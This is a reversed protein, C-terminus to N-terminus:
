VPVATASGNNAGFSTPDIATATATLNCAVTVSPDTVLGSATATCGAIVDDTVTVSYTNTPLGNISATTAANSWLYTINGQGGSVLAAAAGDSGGATTAATVSLNVLVNCTLAPESITVTATASCGALVDDSVTVTYMGAMLGSEAMATGGSPWAYTINGQGGTVIATASGDSGGNTTADSQIPITVGVNCTAAAPETITITATAACGALINDSVTVTYTGATLGVIASSTATNSWMYTITSQGGTVTATADGNSGGNTTVNNGAVTAGVTCSLAAPETITVTAMAACGAVVDDTVTVTYTGATLGAITSTTGGGTWLYTINGQGGTVAATADGNSGGSTTVNNGSATAAVTCVPASSGFNPRIVYPQPFGVTAGDVWAGGNFKYYSSAATIIEVGRQCAINTTTAFEDIGVAYSGAALTTNMALQLVASGTDAPTAILLASSDVISTPIGAVVNYITARTTDGIALGAVWATISTVTASNALTFTNVLTGAAAAGFGLSGMSTGNDRAFTSDTTAMVYLASDNSVNADVGVLASSVIYEFAYTEIPNVNHTGLNITTSTSSNIATAASTLTNVLLGAEYINCTLIADTINNTGGNVVDAVVDFSSAQAQPILFYEGFQNTVQLDDFSGSAIFSADDTVGTLVVTGGVTVTYANGGDGWDDVIILDLNSPDTVCFPGENATANSAYGGTVTSNPVSQLGEGGCGVATNGGSFLTGTGCANGTPVLEWYTEYGWTDTAIDITVDIQGAPCQASAYNIGVVSLLLTLIKTLKKM